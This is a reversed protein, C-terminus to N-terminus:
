RSRYEPNADDGKNVDGWRIGIPDKGTNAWGKQIPVKEYM